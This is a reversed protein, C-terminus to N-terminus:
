IIDGNSSGLNLLLTITQVAFLHLFYLGLHLHFSRHWFVLKLGGIALTGATPFQEQRYQDM